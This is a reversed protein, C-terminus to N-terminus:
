GDANSAEPSAGTGSGPAAVKVMAHRLVRDGVLYGRQLEEIVLDEAYTESVERM